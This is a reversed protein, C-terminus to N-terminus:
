FNKLFESIENESYVKVGNERLIKASVGMGKILKGTFSGDYILNVGCSPSKEKLIAYKCGEKKAIELTKLAGKNFEYTVDMEAENIVADGLIESPIRPTELGGFQEPCVPILTFKKALELVLDNKNNSGNYKCNHGLLCASVLIKM